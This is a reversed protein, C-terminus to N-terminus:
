KREAKALELEVAAVHGILKGLQAGIRSVFGLRELVRCEPMDALLKVMTQIDASVFELEGDSLREPPPAATM